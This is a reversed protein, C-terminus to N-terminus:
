NLSKERVGSISTSTNWILRTIMVWVDSDNDKSVYIVCLRCTVILKLFFSMFVFCHPCGNLQCIMTSCSQM